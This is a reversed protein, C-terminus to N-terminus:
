EKVPGKLGKLDKITQKRVHLVFADLIEHGRKIDGGGIARVAEPSVVFEGGAVIVPVRKTEGGAAHGFGHIAPAHPPGMRHGVHTLSLPVGYPGSHFTAELAKAGALSNGQGLGSTVDAPIIYSDAKPHVSLNDTRGPGATHLFGGATPPTGMSIGREPMRIGGKQELMGGLAYAQPPGSLDPAPQPMVRKNQLVRQAIQGQPSGKMRLAAEQLQEQTMNAFYGYQQQAMPAQMATTEITPTYGGDARHANKNAVAIAMGEDGTRTVHEGRWFALAKEPRSM